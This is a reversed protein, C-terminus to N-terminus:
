AQLKCMDPHNTGHPQTQAQKLTLTSILCEQGEPTPLAFSEKEHFRLNMSNCAKLIPM